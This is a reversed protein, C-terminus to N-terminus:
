LKMLLWCTPMVKLSASLVLFSAVTLHSNDKLDEEDIAQCGIRNYQEDNDMVFSVNAVDRLRTNPAILIDEVDRPSSLTTAVGLNIKNEDSERISGVPIDLQAGKIIGEVQARTLGRSNLDNQRFEIEVTPTIPNAIEVKGVGKVAELQDRVFNAKQYLEYADTPGTVAILFDFGGSIDIENVEPEEPAM